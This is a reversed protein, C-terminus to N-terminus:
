FINKQSPSFFLFGWKKFIKCLKVNWCPWTRGRVLTHPQWMEGHPSLGLQNGTMVVSSWPLILYAIVAEPLELPSVKVNLLWWAANGLIQYAPFDASSSLHLDARVGKLSTHIHGLPPRVRWAPFMWGAVPTRRSTPPEPPPDLPPLCVPPMAGAAWACCELEGGGAEM